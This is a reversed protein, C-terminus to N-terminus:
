LSSIVFLISQVRVGSVYHVFVPSHIAPIDPQTGNVIYAESPQKQNEKESRTQM